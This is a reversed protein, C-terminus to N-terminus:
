VRERCSARGIEYDRYRSRPYEACVDLVAPLGDSIALPQPSKAQSASKQPLVHHICPLFRLLTSCRALMKLAASATKKGFVGGCHQIEAVGSISGILVDDRVRATKAKGRLWYAMNLRVGALYPLLLVTAAASLRGDAQKQFVAANLDSSCM